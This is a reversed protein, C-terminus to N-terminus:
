TRGRLAELAEEWTAYNEIRVLLGDHITGVCAQDRGTRLGGRATADFLFSFAVRDDAAIVDRMEMSITEWIEYFDRWFRRFGDHGRYVPELGPYLGSTRWELEPSMYELFGELDGDSWRELSRRVIEVNQSPV